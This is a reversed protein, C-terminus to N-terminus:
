RSAIGSVLLNAKGMKLSKTMSKMDFLLNKQRSMEVVQVLRHFYKIPFSSALFHLKLTVGLSRKGVIIFCVGADDANAGRLSATVLNFLFLYFMQLFM